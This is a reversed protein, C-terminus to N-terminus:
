GRRKLWKSNELKRAAYSFPLVLIIYIACVLVWAELSRFSEAGASKAVYLIEPTSIVSALSSLKLNGIYFSILTPLIQRFVDPIIVYHLIQYKKFGLSQAALVSDKSVNDIAGRIIDATFAAQTIILAWLACYYESPPRVGFIQNYPFYYFVYILVLLPISRFVDNILLSIYKIPKKLLFFSICVGIVTGILSSYFTLKLTVFLGNLLAGKYSEFITFNWDYSM